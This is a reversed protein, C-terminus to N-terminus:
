KTCLLQPSAALKILEAKAQCTTFDPEKQKKMGQFNILVHFLLIHRVHASLSSQTILFAPPFFLVKLIAQTITTKMIM